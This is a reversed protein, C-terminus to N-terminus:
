APVIAARPDTWALAPHHALRDLLVALLDWIARDHVLHHSLLGIPELPDGHGERRDALCRRLQELVDAEAVASRTGRWDILDIHTNIWQLGSPAVAAKRPGFVSVARYGAEALLNPMDGAIRNWPPVFAPLMREGNRPGFLRRLRVLADAAQMKREAAPRHPGFESKKEGAPAHNAHAWGHVLITVEPRGALLDALSDQAGAAIVALSLPVGATRCMELLQRLAPTDTVADDDRLWIPCRRGEATWRSLEQELPAWDTM